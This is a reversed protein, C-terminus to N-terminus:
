FNLFIINSKFNHTYNIEDIIKKSVFNKEGLNYFDKKLTKYNSLKVKNLKM